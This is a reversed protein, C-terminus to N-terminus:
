KKENEEGEKKNSSYYKRSWELRIKEEKGQLFWYIDEALKAYNVKSNTRSKLLKVMQRLHHFFEEFSSSTIMANFRRDAALSNNDSRLFSLSYGMNDYKNEENEILVSEQNTQQHLAYLQLSSIIAKERNNLKESRALFEKPISEFIFSYASVSDQISRSISNRLNALIAKKMAENKSQDIRYLIKSTISYVTDKSVKNKEM